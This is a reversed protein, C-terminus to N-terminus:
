ILQGPLCTETDYNGESVIHFILFVSKYREGLRKYSKKIKCWNGRLYKESFVAGKLGVELDVKERARPEGGGQTERKTESERAGREGGEGVASRRGLFM